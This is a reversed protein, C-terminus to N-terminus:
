KSFKLFRMLCFGSVATKQLFQSSAGILTMHIKPLWYMIPIAKDQELKKCCKIKTKILEEMSKQTQSYRSVKIRARLFQQYNSFTINEVYLHFITQHKLLPSLLLNKISNKLTSKLMQDSLVPKTQKPKIKQKLEAIKEKM